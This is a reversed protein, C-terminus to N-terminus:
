NISLLSSIYSGASGTGFSFIYRNKNVIGEDLMDRLNILFDVCDMHGYKGLNNSFIKKTDLGAAALCQSVLLTNANPIIIKEIDESSLSNKKVLDTICKSYSKCHILSSDENVNVDHFSGDSIIENDVLGLNYKGVNQNNILMLGAADGVLAFTGFVRKDLTEMKSVSVVLINNLDKRQQLLSSALDLAVENNACHNGSVNITYAKNMKYEYQLYKAVNKRAIVEPEQVFMIIDIEEPKINQTNFMREVLQGMMGAADLKPEVRISKLKLIGEIFMAYEQKNKFGPPMSKVDIHELFHTVALEEEPIYYDIYTIGIM